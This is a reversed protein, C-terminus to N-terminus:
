PLGLSFTLYGEILYRLRIESVVHVQPLRKGTASLTCDMLVADRIGYWKMSIDRGRGFKM